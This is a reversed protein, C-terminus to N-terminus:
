QKKTAPPAPNTKAAAPANGKAAPAAPPRAAAAPKAAGAAPHSQDYLKVIDATIVSSADAWFVPSQQNSVDLVVAYGNQAAYQDMIAMLKAGLDQMLKNNEQEVDSNLDDADRQLSKNSSDIERMIKEKAADSMTSGGKRLQDQLNQIDAQRKELATKRPNFKAQMEAAAKQGEQTNVIAQQVNIVAIRTPLVAPAAAKPPTVAKPPAAATPQGSAAACAGL